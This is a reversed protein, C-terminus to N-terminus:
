GCLAPLFPDWPAALPEVLRPAAAGRVFFLVMTGGVGSSTAASKAVSLGSLPPHMVCCVTPAGRQPPVAAPSPVFKAPQVVVLEWLVRSSGSGGALYMYLWETLLSSALQLQTWLGGVCWNGWVAVLCTRPTQFVGRHNRESSKVLTHTQKFPQARKYLEWITTITHKMSSTYTGGQLYLNTPLLSLAFLRVPSQGHKKTREPRM